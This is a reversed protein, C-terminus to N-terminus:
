KIKNAANLYSECEKAKAADGGANAVCTNYEGILKIRADSKSKMENESIQKKTSSGCASFSISLAVALIMVLYRM